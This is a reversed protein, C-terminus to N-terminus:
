LMRGSPLSKFLNRGTTKFAPVILVAFPDAITLIPLVVTTQPIFATRM